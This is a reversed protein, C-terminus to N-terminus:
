TFLDDQARIILGIKIGFLQVARNCGVRITYLNNVVNISKRQHRAIIKNVATNM